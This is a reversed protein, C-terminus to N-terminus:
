NSNEKADRKDREERQLHIVRKILKPRFNMRSKAM